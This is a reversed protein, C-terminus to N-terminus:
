PGTAPSVSTAVVADGERGPQRQAQGPPTHANGGGTHRESGGRGSERPATPPRSSKLSGTRSLVLM